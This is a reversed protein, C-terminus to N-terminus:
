TPSALKGALERGFEEARTEEGEVLSGMMDEVGAKFPPALPVLGNKRLLEYLRESAQTNPKAAYVSAGTSFTAFPKGALGAKVVSKAHRMIRGSARGMRTSGGIVVFDLTVDPAGADQVAMVRLEHGSESLGRGIAEAIKASNGRRSHYVVIGKM